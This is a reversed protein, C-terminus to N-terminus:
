SHVPNDQRDLLRSVNALALATVACQLCFPRVRAILTMSLRFVAQSQSAKRWSDLLM